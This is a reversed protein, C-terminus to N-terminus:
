PTERRKLCQSLHKIRPIYEEQIWRGDFEIPHYSIREKEIPNFFNRMDEKLLRYAVIRCKKQAAFMEVQCQMWYSKTVRFSPVSYTKVEHIMDQDEGDLNVRLRYKRIKIQRDMELVGITSLIRHEFATGAVVIGLKELWWLYFKQTHWNGMVFATDSAGFWGSRDKDRIM